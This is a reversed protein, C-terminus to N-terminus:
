SPVVDGHPSATDMHPNKITILEQDATEIRTDWIWCLVSGPLDHQQLTPNTGGGVAHQYIGTDLVHDDAM